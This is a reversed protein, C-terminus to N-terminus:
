LGVVIIKQPTKSLRHAGDKEVLFNDTYTLYPAGWGDASNQWAPHIAIFMGEKLPKKDGATFIPLDVIDVGQGHICMRLEPYFGAEVQLQKCYEFVEEPIAGPVCKAAVKQQMEILKDSIDVWKQEPEMGLRFLRSCEAWEGGSAAVEILVYIYDGPLFQEHPGLAREGRWARILSTNFEVAGLEAAKSMIEGDLMHLTLYPRISATCFQILRDHLDVSRLYGELECPSKVLRVDDVDGTLDVFDVEPLNETLYKYVSASIYTMGVWGIKRFGKQRIFYAMAEGFRYANFSAGHVYPCSWVRHPLQLEGKKVLPIQADVACENGSRFIAVCDKCLIGAMSYYHAVDTAWKFVGGCMDGSNYMVAADVHHDAMVKLILDQRRRIEADPTPTHLANLM